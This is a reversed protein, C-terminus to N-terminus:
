GNALIRILLRPTEGDAALLTKEMPLSVRGGALSQWKGLLFRRSGMNPVVHEAMLPLGSGPDVYLDWRERARSRDKAIPGVALVQEDRVAVTFKQLRRGLLMVERGPEVVFRDRDRLSFPFHLLMAWEEVEHRARAELDPREIGGSRAWVRGGSRGMQLGSEWALSDRSSGTGTRSDHVLEQEFLTQGREDLATMRHTVRVDGLAYWAAFGGLRDLVDDLVDRAAPASESRREPQGVAQLREALSQVRKQTFFERPATTDDDSAGSTEEVRPTTSRGKGSPSRGPYIEPDQAQLAGAVFSTVLLTAVFVQVVTRSSHSAYSM